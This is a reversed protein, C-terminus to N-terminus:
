SYFLVSVYTQTYFDLFSFFPGSLTDLRIWMSFFIFDVSKLQKQNVYSKCATSTRSKKKLSTNFDLWTKRQIKKTRKRDTLAKQNNNKISVFPLLFIFGTSNWLDSYLMSNGRILSGRIQAWRWIRVNTNIISIQISMLIFGKRGRLFIYGTSSRM